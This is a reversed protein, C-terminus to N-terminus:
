RDETTVLAEQGRETIVFHKSHRLRKIYQMAILQTVETRSMSTALRLIRGHEGAAKLEKLLEIQNRTLTDAM